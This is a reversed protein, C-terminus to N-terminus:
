AVLRTEVSKLYGRVSGDIVRDGVWVIVGGLLSPDVSSGLLVTKGTLTSLQQVLKTEQLQTLPVATEARARVIGAAADSLTRFEKHLGSLIEIRRKDAVLHCFQLTLPAVRQGLLDTLIAKKRDIPVQANALARSLEHSDHLTQSILEVDDAVRSLEDRRVAIEYLARAYRRTIQAEM